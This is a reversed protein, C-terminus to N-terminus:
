IMEAEMKKKKEAVERNLLVKGEIIEKFSKAQTSYSFRFDNKSYKKKRVNKWRKILICMDSDKDKSQIEELGLWDLLPFFKKQDEISFSTNAKCVLCQMWKQKKKMNSYMKEVCGSCVIHICRSNIIYSEM